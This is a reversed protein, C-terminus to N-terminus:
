AESIVLAQDCAGLLLHQRLLAELRHRAQREEDLARTLQSTENRLEKVQDRLAYVTDVLSREELVPVKGRTDEVIIKEDEAVIVQPCDLLASNVTHRTRTTSYCYAEIVQLLQMDEVHPAGDGQPGQSARPVGPRRQRQRRLVVHPRTKSPPCPRLPPHPRLCWVPSPAPPASPASEPALPRVRDEIPPRVVDVRPVPAALPTPHAPTPHAATPHAATPHAATPHAATPHASTPHATTPHAPVPTLARRTPSPAPPAPGPPGLKAKWQSAEEASRCLVTTRSLTPGQIDFACGEAPDQAPALVLGPVPFRGQYSFRGNALSLQVLCSHFLALYRDRRDDGSVLIVPGVHQLEGLSQLEEGDCGDVTGALVELELEKQRRMASCSAAMEKYVFVSRQTDGRDLHSEETHRQLETLLAPYKDLRRFPQSLGVTLALLSGPPSQQELWRSLTDKLRDLLQVARPHNACYDLQAAKMRPALQLFAGGVRQERGDQEKVAVLALLLDSHVELVVSLNGVLQNFDQESLLKAQELPQLYGSFLSKLEHLHNAETDFIDKFVMSRYLKMSNHRSSLSLDVAKPQASSVKSADPRHEKVYNSPFWGTNGDLTGEWWGGELAQTVTLIDGKKFCLEDNNKGKFNHIARVLRPALESAM